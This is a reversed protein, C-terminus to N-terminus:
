VLALIERWSGYPDGGDARAPLEVLNRVEQFGLMRLLEFIASGTPILVIEQMAHRIDGPDERHLRFAPEPKMDTWSAVFLAKKTLAKAKRTGLVPDPLHYLLGQMLVVDFQRDLLRDIDYLDGQLLSLRDEVGMVEAAIRIRRLHDPRGDFGVVEKYGRRAAEVTFFGDACGLDLLSSKAPDVVRELGDFLRDARDKFYAHDCHPAVLSQTLGNPFDYASFWPGADNIRRQLTARSDDGATDGCITTM